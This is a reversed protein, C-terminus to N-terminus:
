VMGKHSEEKILVVERQEDTTRVPTLEALNIPTKYM